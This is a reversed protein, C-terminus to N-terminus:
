HIVLPKIINRTHHGSSTVLVWLHQTIVAAISFTIETAVNVLVLLSFCHWFWESPTVCAAPTSDMAFVTMILLWTQMPAWNATASWCSIWFMRLPSLRHMGTRRTLLIAAIARSFVCRPGAQRGANAASCGHHYCQPLLLEVVGYRYCIRLMELGQGTTM